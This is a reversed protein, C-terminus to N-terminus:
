LPTVELAYRVADVDYAGEMNEVVVKCAEIDPLAVEGKLDPAVMWLDPDDGRQHWLVFYKM